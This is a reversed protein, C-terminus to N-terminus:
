GRNDDMWGVADSLAEVFRGCEEAGVTLPPEIRLVSWDHACVQALIGRRALREVVLAGAVPYAALEPLGLNEWSLAPNEVPRFRIGGLLGRWSLREVSPSHAVRDGLRGFLDAGRARVGALFAPDVVRDVAKSAIRCAPANGGFTTASIECRLYDPYARARLGEGLIAAGIPMLGGGLSKALVVVDAGAGALFAGTRGMGTQVEDLILLTGHKRCVEAADSLYREAPIRVGAEVQIPEVLFAAIDGFALVRGLAELNGFPIERFRPIVGELGERYIGKAMCGLAGLTVGHFGEEAYVIGSRGTALVATKLAAEVAETGSNGFLCTEFGAGAAKVLKEALEGAFPNLNEVFLNPADQALHGSLAEKLEPPNHGLNFSGFGAVWDDFRRGDDTELVCGRARVFHLDRGSLKLFKGLPPNVHRTFAEFHDM